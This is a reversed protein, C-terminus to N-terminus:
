VGADACEIQGSPYAWFLPLKRSPAVFRPNPSISGVSARLPTGGRVKNALALRPSVPAGKERSPLVHKPTTTTARQLFIVSSSMQSFIGFTAGAIQPQLNRM